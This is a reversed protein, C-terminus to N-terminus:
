PVTANTAIPDDKPDIASAAAPFKSLPGANRTSSMPPEAAARPTLNTFFISILSFSSKVSKEIAGTPHM